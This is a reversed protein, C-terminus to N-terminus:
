RDQTSSKDPSINQYSCVIDAPDKILAYETFIEFYVSPNTQASFPPPLIEARLNLILYLARSRPFTRPTSATSMM